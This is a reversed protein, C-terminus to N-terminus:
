ELRFGQRLTNTHTELAEILAQHMQQQQESLETRLQDGLQEIASVLTPQTEAAEEMRQVLRGMVVLLEALQHNISDQDVHFHQMLHHATFSEIASLLRTEVDATAHLMWTFFLYCVIATMTTSLATSMGHIVMGMGHSNVTSLLDSAGVLAMSLSVITGFVGCLILSNNVFKPTTLHSDYRAVLTAALVEHRIPQKQKYIHALDRVREAILSNAPLSSVLLDPNSSVLVRAQSLAQEEHMDAMLLQGLRVCGLVFLAIVLGNLVYSVRGSYVGAYVRLLLDSQWLALLALLLLIGGAWLLLRKAGVNDSSNM